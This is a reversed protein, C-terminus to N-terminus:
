RVILYEMAEEVTFSDDVELLAEINEESIFMINMASIVYLIDCEQKTIEGYYLKLERKRIEKHTHTYDDFIHKYKSDSMKELFDIKSMEALEKLRQGNYTNGGAILYNFVDGDNRNYYSKLRYLMEFNLLNIEEGLFKEIQKREKSNFKKALKLLNRYYFKILANSSLFIISEAEMNENLFPLLIRYYKSSKNMNVFSELDMDETLIFEKSLPSATFSVYNRKYNKNVLSEIVEQLFLIEYKSFYLNFFESELGRLFYDISKLESFMYNFNDAELARKNKRNDIEPYAKSLIDIKKDINSENALALYLENDPLRGMKAKAKVLVDRM